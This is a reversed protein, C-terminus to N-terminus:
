IARGQLKNNNIALETLKTLCSLECPMKGTLKNLGLHLRKLSTLCSMESPVAGALKNGFLTLVELNRLSSFNKPLVGMLQNNELRLESLSIMASFERHLIGSIKNNALNLVKIVKLQSLDKPLNELQNDQLLLMELHAFKGFDPPINGFLKNFCLSLVQLNDMRSIEFPIAGELQNHGLYLNHLNTLHGIEHPIVGDLANNSLDLSMLHKLAGIETPIDGTLQNFSLKLDQLCLLECIELPFFGTLHNHSLDLSRLMCVQQIEAPIEGLLGNFSLDLQRLFRLQFFDIPISGVLNNRALCVKVVTIESWGIGYWTEVPELASCWHHQNYWEEGKLHIFAKMLIVDTKIDLEKTLLTQTISTQWRKVPNRKRRSRSQYKTEVKFNKLPNYLIPSKLKTKITDSLEIVVRTLYQSDQVDGTMDIFDCGEFLSQAEETWCSRDLLEKELLILVTLLLTEPLSIHKLEANMRNIRYQKTLAQIANEDGIQQICRVGRRAGGLGNLEEAAITDVEPDPKKIYESTLFIAYTSADLVTREESSVEEGEVKASTDESPMHVSVGYSMVMNKILKIKLLMEESPEYERWFYCFYADVRRLLRNLVPKHVEGDEALKDFYARFTGDSSILVSANGEYSYYKPLSM